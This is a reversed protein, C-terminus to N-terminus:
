NCTGYTSVSKLSDETHNKYTSLNKETKDALSYVASISVGLQNM